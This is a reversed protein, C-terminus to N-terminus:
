GYIKVLDKKATKLAFPLLCGEEVLDVKRKTILKLQYEIDAFDFLSIKKKSDFRLMLDIDSKYNEDGRAFSGFLWAATIRNDKKLYDKLTKIILKKDIKTYNTYSVQEEAMHLAKIALDEEGIEYVLRESLYLVMLEELDHKYIKALKRVVEKTLRREGREMKSLIAVDNDIMAAVKRLPLKNEMRLKRLKEGINETSM